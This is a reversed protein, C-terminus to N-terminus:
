SNDITKITKPPYGLRKTCAPFQQNFNVGGRYIMQEVIKSQLGPDKYNTSTGLKYEKMYGRFTGPKFQFLGYSPTNDLDKPNLANPNAKSECWMLAYFWARQRNTLLDKQEVEIAKHYQLDLTIPAVDVATLRTAISISLLIAIFVIWRKYKIKM